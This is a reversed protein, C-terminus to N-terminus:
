WTRAAHREGSATDACSDSWSDPDPETDTDPHPHPERHRPLKEALM